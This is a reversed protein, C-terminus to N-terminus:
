AVPPLDASSLRALDLLALWTNNFCNFYAKGSAEWSWRGM